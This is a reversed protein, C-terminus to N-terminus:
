QVIKKWSALKGDPGFTLRLFRNPAAPDLILTGPAAWGRRGYAPWAGPYTTATQMGRAVLWDAVVTGDTLTASKEPPGLELIAEDRSFTGVRAPWDVRDTACGAAIGLLVLTLAAFCRLSRM